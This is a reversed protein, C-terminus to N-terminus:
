DTLSNLDDIADIALVESTHWRDGNGHLLMMEHGIKLWAIKCESFDLAGEDRHVNRTMTRDAAGLHYTSNNTRVVLATLPINHESDCEPCQCHRSTPEDHVRAQDGHCRHERVGRVNCGDCIIEIRLPRAPKNKDYDRNRGLMCKDCFNGVTSSPVLPGWHLFSCGRQGCDSCYKDPFDGHSTDAM